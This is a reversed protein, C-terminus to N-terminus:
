NFQRNWGHKIFCVQWSRSVYRWLHGEMWWQSRQYCGKRGDVEKTVEKSMKLIYSDSGGPFRTLFMWNCLTIAIEPCNISNLIILIQGLNKKLETLCKQFVIVDPWCSGMWSTWKKNFDIFVSPFSSFQHHVLVSHFLRRGEAPWKSGRSMDCWHIEQACVRQDVEKVM